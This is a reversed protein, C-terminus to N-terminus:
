SPGARAYEAQDAFQVSFAAGFIKHRWRAIRGLSSDSPLCGKAGGGSVVMTGCFDGQRVVTLPVHCREKRPVSSSRGPPSCIPQTSPVWATPLVGAQVRRSLPPEATTPRSA